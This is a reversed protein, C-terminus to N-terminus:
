ITADPDDPQPELTPEPDPYPEDASVFEVQPNAEDVVVDDTAVPEEATVHQGPDALADAPNDYWGDLLCGDVDGEEFDAWYNSKYLRHLGTVAKAM